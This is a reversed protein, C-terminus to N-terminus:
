AELSQRVDRMRRLALRLRDSTSQVELLPQLRVGEGGIVAWVAWSLRQARRRSPYHALDVPVFDFASGFAAGEGESRAGEFRERLQTSMGSLAFDTPWGSAPPPPLLGLLQTPVPAQNGAGRLRALTRLLHDLELWVQVELVSLAWEAEVEVPEAPDAATDLARELADLVAPADAFLDDEEEEESCPEKDAAEAAGVADYERKQQQRQRRQRRLEQQQDPMTSVLSADIAARENRATPEALATEVQCLSLQLTTNAHEYARWHVEEAASAACLLRRRLARSSQAGLAHSVRRANAVLQEDDPLIVFDMRAYPLAQTSRTVYGRALGQVLLTLRSDVERKVAVIQMLTGHLPAKTGPRLEYEPNALNEVGGPLLVHAYLWPEPTALLKEFMLTYQPQFVNLVKRHHPLIEFSWRTSPLDHYLGISRAATPPPAQVQETPALFSRRLLQLQANREEDQGAFLDGVPATMTLVRMRTFSHKSITCRYTSAFAAVQFLFLTVLSMRLM